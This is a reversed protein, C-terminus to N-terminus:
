SAKGLVQKAKSTIGGLVDLDKAINAAENLGVTLLVLAGVWAGIRGAGRNGVALLELLLYVLGISLLKTMDRPVYPSLGQQNSRTAIPTAAVLLEALVFEALIIGQYNSFEPATFQRGARQARRSRGALGSSRRSSSSSSRTSSPRVTRGGQTGQQTRGGSRRAPTSGQQTRGGSRARTPSPASGSAPGFRGPSAPTPSPTRGQQTRGASAVRTAAPM